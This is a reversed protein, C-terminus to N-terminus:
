DVLYLGNKQISLPSPNLDVVAFKILHLHSILNGLFEGIGFALYIIHHSTKM